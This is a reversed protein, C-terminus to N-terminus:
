EGSTIEHYKKSCRSRARLMARSYRSSRLGDFEMEPAWRRVAAVYQPLYVYGLPYRGNIACVGDIERFFVRYDAEIQNNTM